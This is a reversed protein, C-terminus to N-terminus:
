IFSSLIQLGISFLYPSSPNGQRLGRKGFFFGCPSGNILPSFSITKMCELIWNCFRPPFDMRKLTWEIFRWDVFDYAKHIDLKLMAFPSHNRRNIGCALEHCLLINDLIHRGPIFASQNSDIISPIVKKLRNVLIESIPKNLLNCLSIPKFDNISCANTKKLLLCLFSANIGKHIRERVFFDRIALSVENGIISWSHKFFAGNFGDSGPAKDVKLDRVVQDIEEQAIDAM